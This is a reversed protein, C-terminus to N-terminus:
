KACDGSLVPWRTQVAKGTSDPAQAFYSGDPGAGKSLGMDQGTPQAGSGDSGCAALLLVLLTAALTKWRTRM